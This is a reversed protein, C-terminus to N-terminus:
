SEDKALGLFKLREYGADTLVLFRANHTEVWGKEFLSTMGQEMHIVHPNLRRLRPSFLVAGVPQWAKANQQAFIELLYRETSALEEASLPPQPEPDPGFLKDVIRKFLSAMTAKEFLIVNGV